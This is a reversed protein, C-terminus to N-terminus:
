DVGGQWRCRASSGVRRYGGFELITLTLPFESRLPFPTSPRIKPPYRRDSTTNSTRRWERHLVHLPLQRQIGQPCPAASASTIAATRSACYSSPLVPRRRPKSPHNPHRTARANCFITSSLHHRLLTAIQESIEGISFRIQDQARPSPHIQAHVESCLTCRKQAHEGVDHIDVDTLTYARHQFIFILNLM